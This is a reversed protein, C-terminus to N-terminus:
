CDGLGPDYPLSCAQASVPMSGIALIFALVIILRKM